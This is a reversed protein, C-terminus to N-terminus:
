KSFSSFDIAVPFLMFIFLISFFFYGVFWFFSFKSDKSRSVLSDSSSSVDNANANASTTPIDIVEHRSYFSETGRAVSLRDSIYFFSFDTFVWMYCFGLIFLLFSSWWLILTGKATFSTSYFISFFSRHTAFSSLCSNFRNNFYILM